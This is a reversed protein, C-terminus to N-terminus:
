DDYPDMPVRLHRPRWVHWRPVLPITMPREGLPVMRDAPTEPPQWGLELWQRFFVDPESWTWRGRADQVGGRAPVDVHVSPPQSWYDAEWRAAENPGLLKPDGEMLTEGQREPEGQENDYGVMVEMISTPHRGLNVAEVVVKAFPGDPDLDSGEYAWSLRVSLRPREVWLRYLLVAVTVTSLGAGWIALALTVTMLSGRFTAYATPPFPM